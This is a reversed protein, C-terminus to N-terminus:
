NRVLGRQKAWSEERAVGLLERTSLDGIEGRLIQGQVGPGLLTLSLIQSVRNRSLKLRRALESQDHVEGSDIMGQYRHALALMRALMPVRKTSEKEGEKPGEEEFLWRFEKWIRHMGTSVEIADM